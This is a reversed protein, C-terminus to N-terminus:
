AEDFLSYVKSGNLITLYPFRAIILSSVPEAPINDSNTHHHHLSYSNKLFNGHHNPPNYTTPPSYQPPFSLEM